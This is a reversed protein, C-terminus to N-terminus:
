KATPPRTWVSEDCASFLASNVQVNAPVNRNLPSDTLIQSVRWAILNLETHAFCDDLPRATPSMDAIGAVYARFTAADAITEWGIYKEASPRGFTVVKQFALADKRITELTMLPTREAFTPCSVLLCLAACIWQYM